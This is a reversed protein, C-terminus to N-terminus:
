LILPDVLLSKNSEVHNGSKMNIQRSSVYSLAKSFVKRTTPRTRFFITIYHAVDLSGSTSSIHIDNSPISALMRVTDPRSGRMCYAGLNTERLFFIQLCVSHLAYGHASKEQIRPKKSGVFRGSVSGVVAQVAAEKGLALVPYEYKCKLPTPRARLAFLWISSGSPALSNRVRSGLGVNQRQAM